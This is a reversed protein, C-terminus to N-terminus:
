IKYAIPESINHYNYWKDTKDPHFRVGIVRDGEHFSFFPQQTHYIDATGRPLPHQYRGGGTMGVITDEIWEFTNEKLISLRKQGRKINWLALLLLVISAIVLFPSLEGKLFAKITTMVTFGDAVLLISIWLGHTRRVIKSIEEKDNENLTDGNRWM